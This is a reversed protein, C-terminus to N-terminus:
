SISLEAIEFTSVSVVTLRCRLAQLLRELVGDLWAHDRGPRITVLDDKEYIFSSESKYLQGGDNEMFNLVSRYDRTSPRELAKLQQAKLMLDASLATLSRVTPHLSCLGYDKLKIELKRLLKTRTCPWTSPVSERKADDSCSKLYNENGDFEDQKDMAKLDAEMRRIDDQRALLVRSFCCGFRRYM